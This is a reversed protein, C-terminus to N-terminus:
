HLMVMVTFSFNGTIIHIYHNISTTCVTVCICGWTNFNTHVFCGHYGFIFGKVPTVFFFKVLLFGTGPQSRTYKQQLTPHWKQLRGRSATPHVAIKLSTKKNKLGLPQKKIEVYHPLKFLYEAPPQIFWIDSVIQWRWNILDIRASSYVILQLDTDTIAHQSVISELKIIFINDSKKSDCRYTTVQTSPQLCCRWRCMLSTCGVSRITIRDEEKKYIQSKKRWRERKVWKRRGGEGKREMWTPKHSGCVLFLKQWKLPEWAMRWQQWLVCVCVCLQIDGM